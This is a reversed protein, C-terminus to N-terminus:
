SAEVGEGCKSVMKFESGAEIAEAARLEDLSFMAGFNRESVLRAAMGATVDVAVVDFLQWLFIAKCEVLTVLRLYRIQGFVDAYKHCNKREKM